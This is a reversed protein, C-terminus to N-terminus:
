ILIFHTVGAGGAGGSSSTGGNAQLTPTAAASHTWVVISGGGGGSGFLYAACGGGGGLCGVSALHILQAPEIPQAANGAIPAVNAAQFGAGSSIGSGSCAYGGTYAAGSGGGSSHCSSSDGIGVGDVMFNSFPHLVASTGGSGDWKQLTTLARSLAGQGGCGSGSTGAYGAGGNAKIIGAAGTIKGALIFLMGGGCGGQSNGAVNTGGAAQNMYPYNTPTASGALGSADIISATDGFSIENAFIYFPSKTIKLTQGANIILKNVQKYGCADNWTTAGSITIDATGDKIFPFSSGAWAFYPLLANDVSGGSLQPFQIISM